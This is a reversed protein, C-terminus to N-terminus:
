RKAKRRAAWFRKTREAAAKRKAPTWGSRRGESKSPGLEAASRRGGGIISRIVVIAKTVQEREVTLEAIAQELHERVITEKGKSSMKDATM